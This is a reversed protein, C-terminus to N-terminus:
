DKPIESCNKIPVFNLYGYQSQAYIKWKGKIKKITMFLGFNDRWGPSGYTVKIERGAPFIAKLQGDWEIPQPDVGNLKQAETLSAPPYYTGFVNYSVEGKGEYYGSGTSMGVNKIHWYSTDGCKLVYKQWFEGAINEAENGLRIEPSMTQPPPATTPNVSSASADASTGKEKAVILQANTRDDATIENDNYDDRPKYWSQTYFYSGLEGQQDYKRGHRAFIANRLIRLEHTPLGELENENIPEGNVIKNEVSVAKASLKSDNTPPPTNANDANSLTKKSCGFTLFCILILLTVFRSSKM